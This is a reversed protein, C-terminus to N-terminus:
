ILVGCYASYFVDAMQYYGQGQPHVSEEPVLVEQAARPNAKVTKNGFNYDTDHMLCLPIVTVGAIQPLRDRLYNALAMVKADENYQFASASGTTYGDAGVSAYGDQRSRYITNVVFIPIEANDARIRRVMEIIADGNGSPDIDMGNTGLYIQVADPTGGISQGQTSLYHSYSFGTGDWFPNASGDVSSSGSYRTDFTYSTDSLYSAASFGSRGEHHISGQEYATGDASYDVGSERTGVFTIHDDSLKRVEPLWRKWNTLSDGIALINKQPKSDAVIRLTTTGSWIENLDDDYIVMRLRKNGIQAASPAVSFKRKYATGVSCIWQVHYRDAELCVQNNYLEITRGVACYIERPMYCHLESSKIKSQPIMEIPDHYQQYTTAGHNSVEIQVDTGYSPDSWSVRVFAVGDPVVWTETGNSYGKDKQIVKYADYASIFRMSAAGKKCSMQLCDGPNVPIYGSTNYNGDHILGTTPGIYKGPLFDPDNLNLLNRANVSETVREDEQADLREKLTAYKVGDSSERANVIEQIVVDDNLATWSRYPEYATFMGDSTFEIQVTRTEMLYTPVHISARIYAVGVPVTYTQVGTSILSIPAKDSDYAMLFKMTAVNQGKTSTDIYSATVVDGTTVAIYGTTRYSESEGITGDAELYGIVLEDPNFKNKGIEDHSLHELDGKLEIVDMDSAAGINARAQDQQEGTLTQASGYQVVDSKVENLLGWYEEDTLAKGAPVAKKAMYSTFGDNSRVVDLAEYNLEPNHEGKYIPRVRGINVYEM